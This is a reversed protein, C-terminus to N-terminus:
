TLHMMHSVQIELGCNLTKGGEMPEMSVLFYLNLGPVDSPMMPLQPLAEGAGEMSLTKQNLFVGPIEYRPYPTCHLTTECTSSDPNRM